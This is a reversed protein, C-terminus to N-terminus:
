ILPNIRNIPRGGKPREIIGLERSSLAGKIVANRANIVSFM